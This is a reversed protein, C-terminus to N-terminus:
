DGKRRSPPLAPSPPTRVAALDSAGNPAPARERAETLETAAGGGLGGGELLLAKIQDICAHLEDAVQRDTFRVVTFGERELWRQREVDRLQVAELREHVGGDVEILLNRAYCAFDAFYPGVPAQRRFNADLKRLEKWLREETWTM